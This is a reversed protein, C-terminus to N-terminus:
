CCNQFLIDILYEGAHPYLGWDLNAADPLLVFHLLIKFVNQVYQKM